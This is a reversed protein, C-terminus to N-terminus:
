DMLPPVLLLHEGIKALIGAIPSRKPGDPGTGSGFMTQVASKTKSRASEGGGATERGPLSEVHETPDTKEKSLQALLEKLLSKIEDMKDDKGAGVSGGSALAERLVKTQSPFGSAASQAGPSGVNFQYGPQPNGRGIFQQDGKPAPPPAGGRLKTEPALGRLQTERGNVPWAMPPANPPQAPGEPAVLPGTRIMTDKPRLPGSPAPPATGPVPQAVPPKPVATALPPEPAKQATPPVPAKQAMPPEKPAPPPKTAKQSFARSLNDFAELIRRIKGSIQAIEGVIPVFGGIAHGVGEVARWQQHGPSNRLSPDRPASKPPSSPAPSPGGGSPSTKPTINAPGGGGAPPPMGPKWGSPSGPRGQQWGPPGAQVLKPAGAFPISLYVGGDKHAQLYYYTRPDTQQSAQGPHPPPEIGIVTATGLGPVNRDEGVRWAV